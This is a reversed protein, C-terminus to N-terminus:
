RQVQYGAAEICRQFASNARDVDAGSREVRITGAGTQMAAQRDLRAQIAANARANQRNCAEIRNHFAPVNGNPSAVSLGIGGGTHSPPIHRAGTDAPASTNLSARNGTPDCAVLGLAAIGALLVNRM